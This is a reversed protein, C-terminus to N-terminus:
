SSRFYLATACTPQIKMHSGFGTRTSFTRGSAPPTARAAHATPPRPWHSPRNPNTSAWSWNWGPMPRTNSRLKNAAAIESAITFLMEKDEDADSGCPKAELEKLKFTGYADGGVAAGYSRVKRRRGPVDPLQAAVGLEAEEAATGGGGRGAHANPLRAAVGLETDQVLVGRGAEEVAM